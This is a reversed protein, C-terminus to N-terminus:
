FFFVLIWRHKLDSGKSSTVGIKPATIMMNGGHKINPILMYIWAKKSAAEKRTAENSQSDQVDKQSDRGENGGQQQNKDGSSMQVIDDDEAGGQQQNKDGSSMQVIDDDEAGGHQQNKDGSAVTDEGDGDQQSPQSPQHTFRTPAEVRAAAAAVVVPNDGRSSAMDARAPDTSSSMIDNFVAIHDMKQSSEDNNQVVENFAADVTRKILKQVSMFINKTTKSSSGSKLGSLNHNFEDRHIGYVMNMFSFRTQNFQEATLKDKTRKVHEIM